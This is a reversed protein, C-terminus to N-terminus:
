TVAKWEKAIKEFEYNQLILPCLFEFEDYCFPIRGAILRSFVTSDEGLGYQKNFARAIRMKTRQNLSKFMTVLESINVQHYTQTNM